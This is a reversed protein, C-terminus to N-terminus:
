DRHFSGIAAFIVVETLQPGLEAVSIVGRADGRAFAVARQEEPTFRLRASGVLQKLEALATHWDVSLRLTISYAKTAGLNAFDTRVVAAKDPIPISTESTFADVISQDVEREVEHDGPDPLKSFVFEGMVHPEMRSSHPTADAQIERRLTAAGGGPGAAVAVAAALAGIMVIM